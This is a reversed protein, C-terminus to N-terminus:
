MKLLRGSFLVQLHSVEDVDNYYQPCLIDDNIIICNKRSYHMYRADNNLFEEDVSLGLFKRKSNQLTPDLNQEILKRKKESLQAINVITTDHLCNAYFSSVTIVPPETPITNQTEKKRKWLVKETTEQQDTTDFFVLEDQATGKSEINM